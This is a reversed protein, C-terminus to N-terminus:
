DEGYSIDVNIKMYIEVIKKILNVYEEMENENKDKNMEEELEKISEKYSNLLSKNKYVEQSYRKERAEKAEEICKQIREIERDIRGKHRPMKLKINNVQNISKEVLKEQLKEGEKINNENLKKNM